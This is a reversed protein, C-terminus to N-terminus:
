SKTNQTGNNMGNTITEKEKKRAGARLVKRRGNSRGLVKM